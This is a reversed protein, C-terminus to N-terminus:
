KRGGYPDAADRLGDGVFNMALITVVIAVGASLLWPASALARINQAEQLLVGWSIVPPQLGLGLFSLATEALIMGPIALTAAAIIHSTFAPLMHRLIVRMDSAGDLRAAAVYDESKLALFRSRVVRALETWGILSLILTIAFYIELASWDRPLAAALGMWLPIPPVSRIFEIVRQVMDDIWSGYYGSIGGIIVGFLISLFVGFLGVSLTIRAGFILRSLMDRGQRDAGLLFMVARRGEVGILHHDGPIMGWFNYRDGKVWFGIDFTKEPDSVFTRRLARPDVEMKLAHVHPQWTWSDDAFFHIAQPPAYTYRANVDNPDYPALIEAFAAVLYLLTLVLLSMMALRHRRFGRWILRAQSADTRRAPMAALEPLTDTTGTEIM